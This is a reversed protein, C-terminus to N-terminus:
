AYQRVARGGNSQRPLYNRSGAATASSSARSRRCGSSRPEGSHDSRCSKGPRKTKASETGYIAGKNTKLCYVCGGALAIESFGLVRAMKRARVNDMEFEAEILNVEASNLLMDVALVCAGLTTKPRFGAHAAFHIQASKGQERYDTLYIVAPYRGDVEIVVPCFSIARDAGVPPHFYAMWDRLSWVFAPLTFITGQDVQEQWAARLENATPQLHIFVQPEKSKPM